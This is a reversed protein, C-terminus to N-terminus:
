RGPPPTQGRRQPSRGSPRAAVDCTTLASAGATRGSVSRLLLPVRAVIVDDRGRLATSLIADLHNHLLRYRLRDPVIVPILVIVQKHEREGLDDLFAVM